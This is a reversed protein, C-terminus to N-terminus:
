FCRLGVCSFKSRRICCFKIRVLGILFICWCVLLGIVVIFGLCASAYLLENKAVFSTALLILAIISSMIYVIWFIEYMIDQGWEDVFLQFDMTAEPIPSIIDSYDGVSAQFLPQFNLVDMAPPCDSASLEVLAFTSEGSQDLYDGGKLLNRSVNYLYDTSTVSLRSGEEAYFKVFFLGQSALVFLVLFIYFQYQRQRLLTTQVIHQKIDGDVGTTPKLRVWCCLRIVMITFLLVALMTPFVIVSSTYENEWDSTDMNFEKSGKQLSSTIRPLHQVVDVTGSVTYSINGYSQSYVSCLSCTVLLWAFTGTKSLMM